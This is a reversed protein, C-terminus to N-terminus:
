ARPTVVTYHTLTRFTLDSTWIGDPAAAFFLPLRDLKVPDGAIQNTAPDIRTLAGPDIANANRGSGVISTPIKIVVPVGHTFVVQYAELLPITATVRGTVPDVRQVSIKGVTWISGDGFASVDTIKAWRPNTRRIVTGTAADISTEPTNAPGSKVWIQAFGAAINWPEYRGNGVQIPQGVVQNTRPDIRLVSGDHTRSTVWLFGYAAALAAPSGTGPLSIVATM